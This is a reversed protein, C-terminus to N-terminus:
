GMMSLLKYGVNDGGIREAGEGVQDGERHRVGGGGGSGGAKKVKGGGGGGSRSHLAKYFKGGSFTSASVLQQVKVEDISDGSRATKILM